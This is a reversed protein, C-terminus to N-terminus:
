NTNVRRRAESLLIKKQKNRLFNNYEEKDRGEVKIEVLNPSQEKGFSIFSM